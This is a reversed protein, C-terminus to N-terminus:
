EVKTVEYGANTVAEVLIGNAIEHSLTISATGDALKVNADSVGEVAKLAAAVRAVCHECMMGKVHLTRVKSDKRIENLDINPMNKTVKRNTKSSDYLKFLNLRLANLVVFLSSLSMAASGMWPRLSLLGLGTFAGAAIPIMILNYIFAWFLNEKINLLTARSLRIAATADKLTSKMLIIEASDIAIDSGAGIAISVDAKTLSPSDNIGDGIMMVKGHKQLENIVLLKENPLVGSIFHDIGVRSAVDKAVLENDGTLMIPTIGLKKFENISELSDEKIEDKVTIVGIIENNLIFILPTASEDYINENLQSGITKLYSKNCGILTKGNYKAKVGHGEIISFDTLSTKAIKNTDGYKTIAKALPHESLSEISYALEILESESHKNLPIIENIVPEGKTITGTKDLVVFDVKGAEELASATKFLINNKAGLGSGVMIAVPTALGLACPCSIVLISIAKAIAFSLKTETLQYQDIISGGFIMWLTFVILSIGLVVPVFIASVKDALLSIKTKTSSAEEVMKVIQKLTTDNGVKTANCILYGNQNITACFVQSGVTKEIPMSEGTLISENVASSGDIVTGDVPFSEGPKVIFTDNLALENANVEVELGNVIKHATQPALNLLSKIANTSKGKSYSELTKGISILTPVMGATEFYLNMSLHMCHDNNGQAFAVIMLVYIILSYIFSVGSGLMVLTDMTPSLHILAKTGNLYFHYNLIMIALSIMLEITALVILHNELGFIPWWKTMYGMSIYFLPILLIISFILKILKSKTDKDEYKEKIDGKSLSASYGANKVANEIDKNTLSDDYTVDMSNTLLNVRCSSVGKLNSVAKEVHAQCAACSMGKVDYKETTAM